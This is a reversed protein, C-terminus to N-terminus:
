LLAHHGFVFGIQIIEQSYAMDSTLRTRSLDLPECIDLDGLSQNIVLGQLNLHRFRAQIAFITLPSKQSGCFCM